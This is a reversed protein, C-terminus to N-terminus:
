LMNKLLLIANKFDCKKIEQILDITDGGKNCGFCFWTNEQVYWVFSPTDEAHIPCLLQVRTRSRGGKENLIDGIPVQKVEEVKIQYDSTIKGQGRKKYKIFRDIAIEIEKKLLTNTELRLYYFEDKTEVYKRADSTIEERIEELERKLQKLYVKALYVVSAVGDIGKGFTIHKTFFDPISMYPEKRKMKEVIMEIFWVEFRFNRYMLTWENQGIENELEWEELEQETTVPEM